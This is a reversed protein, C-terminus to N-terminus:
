LSHLLFQPCPSVLGRGTGSKWTGTHGTIPLAEPALAMIPYLVGARARTMRKRGRPVLVALRMMLECCSQAGSDCM